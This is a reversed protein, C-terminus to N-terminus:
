KKFSDLLFVWFVVLENSSLNAQILQSYDTLAKMQVNGQPFFPELPFNFFKVYKKRKKLCFDLYNGIWVKNHIELDDLSLAKTFTRNRYYDNCKLLSRDLEPDQAQGVYYKSPKEVIDLETDSICTDRKKRLFSDSPKKM